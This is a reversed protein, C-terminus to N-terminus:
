NKTLESVMIHSMDIFDSLPETFYHLFQRNLFLDAPKCGGLPKSLFKVYM